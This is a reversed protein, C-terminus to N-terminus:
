FLIWLVKNIGKCREQLCQLPCKLLFLLFYKSLSFFMLFFLELKEPSELVEQWEEQKDFVLV